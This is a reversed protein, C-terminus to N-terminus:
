YEQLLLNGDADFFGKSDIQYIGELKAALFRMLTECVRDLTVEDAHDIPRRITFLQQTQIVREMLMGHNPSFDQTELFAAWSNLDDRIDDEKTLYRDLPIPAQENGPLILQCGTWGLDDGRFHGQVTLGQEALHELLRVPAIMEPSAAFVRYWM